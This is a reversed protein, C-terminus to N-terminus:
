FFSTSGRRGPNLSRSTRQSDPRRKLGHRKLRSAIEDVAEDTPTMAYQGHGEADGLMKSSGCVFDHGNCWLGTKDTWSEPLYPSRAFLSGFWTGCNDPTVKGRRYESVAGGSCPLPPGVPHWQGEPLNLKPDGFLANFVIRDRLEPKAKLKEVYTEGIVQAGQSYGGLVFRSDPCSSMRQQLYAYLEETGNNVSEGYANSGGASFFAGAANLYAPIKAWGEADIPM